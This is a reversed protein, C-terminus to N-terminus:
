EKDILSIGIIKKSYVRYFEVMKINLFILLFCFAILLIFVFYVFAYYQSLFQNAVMGFKNTYTCGLIYVGILIILVLLINELKFNVKKRSLMKANGSISTICIIIVLGFCMFEAISYDYSEKFIFYALGLLIVLAFLLLFKYLNRWTGKYFEHNNGITYGELNLDNNISSKIDDVILVSDDDEGENEKNKNKLTELNKKSRREKLKTSRRMLNTNDFSGEHLREKLKDIGKKNPNQNEDEEESEEANVDAYLSYLVNEEPVTQSLSCIRFLSVNSSLKILRRPRRFHISINNDKDLINSYLEFRKSDNDIIENDIIEKDDQLDESDNEKM